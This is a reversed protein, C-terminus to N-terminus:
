ASMQGTTVLSHLSRLIDQAGDKEQIVRKWEASQDRFIQDNRIDSELDFLKRDLNERKLAGPQSLIYEKAAEVQSQLLMIQEVVVEAMDKDTM